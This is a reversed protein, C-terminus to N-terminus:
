ASPAKAGAAYVQENDAEPDNQEFELGYRLSLIDKLKEASDEGYKEEMFDVAKTYIAQEMDILTDYNAILRATDDAFTAVDIAVDEEAEAEFLFQAMSFVRGEKKAAAIDLAKKEFGTMAQNIEEDFEFGTPGTPEPPEKDKKKEDKPEEEGEDGKDEGEGEAPADEGETGEAAADDGAAADEGEKSAEADDGAGADDGGEEGGGGFLDVEGEGGGEADEEFLLGESLTREIEIAILRRLMNGTLNM